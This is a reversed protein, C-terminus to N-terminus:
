TIKEWHSPKVLGYQEVVRTHVKEMESAPIVPIGRIGTFVKRVLAVDEESVYETYTVAVVNDPTIPIANKAAQWFDHGSHSQSLELSDTTSRRLVIAIDGFRFEPTLSFWVGTGESAARPQLEGSVGINLANHLSTQHFYGGAALETGMTRALVQDTLWVPKMDGVLQTFVEKQYQDRICQNERGSKSYMKIFAEKTCTDFRWQARFLTEVIKTIKGVTQVPRNIAIRNSIHSFVDLTEDCREELAERIFAKAAAQESQFRTEFLNRLSSDFVLETIKSDTPTTKRNYREIVTVAHAHPSTDSLSANEETEDGPFGFLDDSWPSTFGIAAM